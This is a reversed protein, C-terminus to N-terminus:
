RERCSPFYVTKGNNGEKDFVSSEKLSSFYRSEVIKLLANEATMKLLSKMATEPVKVKGRKEAKRVDKATRSLYHSCDFFMYIDLLIKTLINKFVKKITINFVAFAIM